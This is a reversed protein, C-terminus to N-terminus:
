SATGAQAAMREGHREIASHALAAARTGRVPLRVRLRAGGLESQSASINGGHEIVIKKVIALGLGTGEHKTTVYPDFITQRLAEPIGPGSDEIDLNYFEEDRRLSVRIRPVGKSAERLAQAANQVLNMFVRRLMQSDILAPAEGEQIDFDLEIRRAQWASRLAQPIGADEDSLVALQEAQERLFAALDEEALYAQPLRAFDSFETVLRRLTAVEDEVIELSTDLLKRFKPESGEYRRHVEQVALQIPTLPNKIEHALRRAMEQWAGIRQLYEIRGRSDAVEALMRNFARALDSIEDHGREPVRIELDGAAVLQTARALEGIRGSVGRALFSGVGVAAVITIGLLLTFALVYSKEDSERRREIQKYTDVFQSMETLEDFRARDAAFVAVLNIGEAEEDDESGADASLPRVVELRNERAPDLPAERAVHALQVGGNGRVSLSVLSSHQAFAGRLEQEIRAPDGGAVADRLAAREAIASAEHRMSAKVARALDQYLGLSRDLHVGIEPVFFRAAAQRVTTEALWIAVLVPILATLVIALALRRQIRDSVAM